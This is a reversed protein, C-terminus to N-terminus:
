RSVVLSLSLCHSVFLPFLANPSFKEPDCERRGAAPLNQFALHAIVPPLSTPAATPVATTNPALPVPAPQPLAVTVAPPVVAVAGVTVGTKAAITISM